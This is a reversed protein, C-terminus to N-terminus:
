SQTPFRRIIWYIIKYLFYSFEFAVDFVVIALLSATILPLFSYVTSIYGNATVIASGFSSSYSIDPLGSVLFSVIGLIFNVIGAIIM